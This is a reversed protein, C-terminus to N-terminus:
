KTQCIKQLRQPWVRFNVGSVALLEGVNVALLYTSGFICICFIRYNFMKLPSSVDKNLALIRSPKVNFQLSTFISSMESGQAFEWPLQFCETIKHISKAIPTFWQGREVASWGGPIWFGGGWEVLLYVVKRLVSIIGHGHTTAYSISTLPTILTKRNKGIKMAAM